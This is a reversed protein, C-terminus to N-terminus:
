TGTSPRCPKAETGAFTTRFDAIDRTTVRGVVFREGNATTFWRAFKRMDLVFGRRSGPAYDHANLYEEFLHGEGEGVPIPDFVNEGSNNM